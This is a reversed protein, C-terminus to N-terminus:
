LLAKDFFKIVRREYERPQARIGGTHRAGPTKGLTKPNGAARYFEPNLQVEGGQGAGSYMLLLPRPSVKRVLDVLSAPPLEDHFVAVAATEVIKFPTALWKDSSAPSDLTERVSRMGAGESAVAKLAATEAATQIMMEAGVSLGLGGIRDPDVDARHRLFGIAAKLDRENGWGWSTPDGDSEGEGRRDFLLVGYGHAALMRAHAQPGKRGPFAIVAAGNRSPVYWGHLTLGDSTEFSVDQHAVGLDAAPVTARAVHTDVYSMGVPVVVYVFVLVGAAGLLSRRVYRRPRSGDLRRTRWLTVVGIALLLLGALIALLGTYDDGSAGVTSTYHWAEGGAALGLVGLTLALAARRGGRLRPYWRAAGLLFALPVLGSVLHDSASTGPQPQIFSDDIVHGAILLVGAVFLGAERRPRASLLAVRSRLRLLIAAPGAAATSSMRGVDCRWLPRPLPNGPRYHTAFAGGPTPSQRGLREDVCIRGGCRALVPVRRGTSDTRRSLTVASAAGTSDPSCDSGPRPEGSTQAVLSPGSSAARVLM